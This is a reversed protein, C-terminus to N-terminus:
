AGPPLLNAANDAARLAYGESNVAPSALAAEKILEWAVYGAGPNRRAITSAMNYLAHWTGSSTWYQENVARVLRAKLVDLAPDYVSTGQPFVGKIKYREIVGEIREYEFDAM